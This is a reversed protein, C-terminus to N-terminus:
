HTNDQIITTVYHKIINMSSLQQAHWVQWVTDLEEYYLLLEFAIISIFMGTSVTLSTVPLCLLLVAHVCVSLLGTTNLWSTSNRQESIAAM